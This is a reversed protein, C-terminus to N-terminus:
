PFVTERTSAIRGVSALEPSRYLAVGDDFSLREARQVKAAITQLDSM